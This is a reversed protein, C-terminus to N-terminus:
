QKDESKRKDAVASLYASDMAFIAEIEEPTTATNTLQKWAQLDTFTLPSLGSFGPQRRSSLQHFWEIVCEWGQPVEPADPM